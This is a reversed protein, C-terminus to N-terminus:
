RVTVHYRPSLESGEEDLDFHTYHLAVPSDGRALCERVAAEDGRRCASHLAGAM